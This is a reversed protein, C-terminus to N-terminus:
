NISQEVFTAEDQTWSQSYILWSTHLHPGSISGPLPNVMQAFGANIRDNHLWVGTVGRVNRLVKGWYHKAGWFGRLILTYVEGSVTLKFPWNMQGMFAQQEEEDSITLIDVHFYLHPPAKADPFSIHSVEDLFSGTSTPEEHDTPQSRRTKKPQSTNCSRCQLASTGALGVSLWKVILKDPETPSIGNNAFMSPTVALVFLRRDGRPHVIKKNHIKRPCTFNRTEQVSFLTELVKSSNTKPDLAIEMFFDCSAYEGPFFSHPHLKHAEDFLKHSGRTLTSKLNKNEILEKTTRATFHSVLVHFLDTQKGGPSRLWLPSYVAYLSELAAALWCRNKLNDEKETAYSMFTTHTARNIKVSKPPRGGKSRKNPHNLLAETTDPPRGDNMASRQRKTPKVWAISHAVDEQPGRMTLSYDFELAKVFAFLESFGGLMTKKGTSFMYYVRHMSEQANTTSPLGDDGDSSVSQQFHERCGKLKQMAKNSNTKGFVDMYAAIFGKQQAKSFDVVSRAMSKRKHPLLSPIMFQRFLITFHITYYSKGLGRIWSLQVPIWRNIDGCYMSTTLLYGTAFFPYTVDSILGGSYLKNGQEGRDLLRQSIWDTQFTIHEQGRTCAMSIVDLGNQQWEFLDLMFKNNDRGSGSSFNIQQLIQRRLHRLWDSNGLLEHINVVSSSPQGPGSSQGIKLQLASAKPNAKIREMLDKKALPDPKKSSPWRHDHFGRHRLLGWGSCRTLVARGTFNGPADVPWGKVPHTVSSSSRLKGMALQRPAQMTVGMKIVGYFVLATYDSLEGSTWTTSRNPYLPYGQRDLICGHDIYTSFGNDMATPYQWNQNSESQAQNAIDSNVATKTKLEDPNTTSISDTASKTTSITPITPTSAITPPRARPNLHSTPNATTIKKRM